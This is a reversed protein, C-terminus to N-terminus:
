ADVKVPSDFSANTLVPKHTDFYEIWSPMIVFRTDIDSVYYFAGRPSRLKMVYVTQGLISLIFKAIDPTDTGDVPLPFVQKFQASDKIKVRVYETM